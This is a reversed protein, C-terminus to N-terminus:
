ETLAPSLLPNRVCFKLQFLELTFVVGSLENCLLVSPPDSRRGVQRLSLYSYPKLVSPDLILLSRVDADFTLGMSIKTSNTQM